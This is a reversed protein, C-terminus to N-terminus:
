KVNGGTTYSFELEEIDEGANIQDTLKIKTVETSEYCYIVTHKLEIKRNM